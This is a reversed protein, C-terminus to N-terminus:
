GAVLVVCTLHALHLAWESEDLKRGIVGCSGPPEPRAQEADFETLAARVVTAAPLRLAGRGEANM